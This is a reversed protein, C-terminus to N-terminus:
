RRFITAFLGVVFALPFVLNMIAYIDRGSFGYDVAFVAMVIVIASAIFYLLGLHIKKRWLNLVSLLVGGILSALYIKPKVSLSFLLYATGFIGFILIKWRAAIVTNWYDEADSNKFKIIMQM